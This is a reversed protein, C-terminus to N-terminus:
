AEPESKPPDSEQQQNSAKPSAGGSFIKKVSLVVFILAWGLIVPGLAYLLLEVFNLDKQYVNFEQDFYGQMIMRRLILAKPSTDDPDLEPKDYKVKMGTDRWLVFHVEIPDAQALKTVDPISYIYLAMGTVSISWFLSIILAIRQWSKLTKYYNKMPGTISLTHALTVIESITGERCFDALFIDAQRMQVFCIM